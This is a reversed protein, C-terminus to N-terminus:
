TAGDTVLNFTQGSVIVTASAQVTSTGAEVTTLVTQAKGEADTTDTDPSVSGVGDTRTFTVEVGEVATWGAGTGYNVGVLATLTHDEGVKNTGELPSISIAAYVTPPEQVMGADWTMDAEGSTLATTATEGTTPDADSDITDDGGEDQLTFFYGAPPVFEVYYNGAVLNNFIYYGSPATQTSRILTTNEYLNVTVDAIGASPGGDDQLGNNNFDQWVYDGIMGLDADEKSPSNHAGALIVDGCQGGMEDKPISFEYIMNWQWGPSHTDNWDYPPSITLDSWGSQELNWELSTAAQVGHFPHTQSGDAGTLGSSWDGTGVDVESLYDLTLDEFYLNNSDLPDAINFLAKDSGRLKDYTHKIDWGDLALYASPDADDYVNDNFARDVVFAWYCTDCDEYFYINGPALGDGGPSNKLFSYGSDLRGDVIIISTHVQTTDTASDSENTDEGSTATVVTQEETCEAADLPISVEVGLNYTSLADICVNTVPNSLDPEGFDKVGDGDQDHWLQVSWGQNSIANVTICDEIDSNNSITHNYAVVDGPEAQQTHDPHISVVGSPGVAVTYAIWDRDNTVTFSGPDETDINHSRNASYIAFNNRGTGTMTSTQDSDYNLPYDIPDTVVGGESEHGVVAIWLTDDAGWSPMLDDPDPSDSKGSAAASIEPPTACSFGNIRYVQVAMRSRESTVFNVTTAGANGTAIKYFVGMGVDGKTQLTDLPTWGDPNATIPRSSRYSAFAILLDGTNVAPINVLHSTAESPFTSATVPAVVTPAAAQAPIATVLGLSVLLVLSFLISFIKRKM